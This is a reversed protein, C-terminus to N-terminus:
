DGGKFQPRTTRAFGGVQFDFGQERPLKIFPRGSDDFQLSACGMIGKKSLLNIILAKSDDSGVRLSRKRARVPLQTMRLSMDAM